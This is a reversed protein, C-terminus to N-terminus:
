DAEAYFQEERRTARRASILRIRGGRDTHAIMLLRNQSSMGITIYREEDESHEDDVVTIFMPDGFVTAAEELAVGHKQLNRAAKSADWEFQRGEDM